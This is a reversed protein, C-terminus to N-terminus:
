LGFADPASLRTKAYTLRNALDLQRRNWYRVNGKLQKCNNYKYVFLRLSNINMKRIDRYINREKTNRFSSMNSRLENLVSM